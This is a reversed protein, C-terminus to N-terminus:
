RRSLLFIVVVIATPATLLWLTIEQPTKIVNLFFLALTLSLFALFVFPLFISWGFFTVGWIRRTSIQTLRHTLGLEAVRREDKFILKEIELGVLLAEELLEYYFYCKMAIPFAVICAALSITGAILGSMAFSQAQTIILVSAGIMVLLINSWQVVYRVIINDFLHITEKVKKWYEVLERPGLVQSM